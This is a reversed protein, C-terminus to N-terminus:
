VKAMAEEAVGQEVEDQIARWNKPRTRPDVAGLLSELRSGTHSMRLEGDVLDFRVRDGPKLGLHARLAAPITIQGKERVRSEFARVRVM